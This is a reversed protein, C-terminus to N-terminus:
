GIAINMGISINEDITIKMPCGKFKPRRFNGVEIEIHITFRETAYDPVVM